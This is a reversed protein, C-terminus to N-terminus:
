VADARAEQGLGRLAPIVALNFGIGSCVWVLLLSWWVYMVRGLAGQVAADKSLLRLLDVLMVAFAAVFLVRMVQTGRHLLRGAGSADLAAWMESKTGAKTLVDRTEDVARAELAGLAVGLAFGLAPAWWAYPGERTIVLWALVAGVAAYALHPGIRLNRYLKTM